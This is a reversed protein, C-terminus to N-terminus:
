GRTRVTIYVYVKILKGHANRNYWWWYSIWVQPQFVTVKGSSKKDKLKRRRTKCYNQHHDLYQCPILFLFSLLKRIMFIFLHHHHWFTSRDSSNKIRQMKFVWVCFKIAIDFLHPSLFQLMRTIIKMSFSQIAFNHKWWSGHAM